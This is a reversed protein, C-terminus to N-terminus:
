TRSKKLAESWSGHRRRITSPAPYGELNVLDRSQPVKRFERNFRRLAEILEEDTYKPKNCGRKSIKDGFGAKILANNWTKFRMMITWATPYNEPPSEMDRYRPVRGFERYFRRIVKILEGNTYVVEGKQPM